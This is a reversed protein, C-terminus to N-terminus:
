GFWYGCEKDRRTGNGEMNNAPAGKEKTKRSDLDTRNKCANHAENKTCSWAM